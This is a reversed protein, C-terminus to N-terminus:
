NANDVWELAKRANLMEENVELVPVSTIGKALMFDVDKNEIYTINKANLKEKLMLCLPCDTSYLVINM